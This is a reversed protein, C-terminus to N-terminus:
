SLGVGGGGRDFGDGFGRSCTVAEPILSVRAAGPLSTKEMEATLTDTVGPGTTSVSTGVDFTIREVPQLPM